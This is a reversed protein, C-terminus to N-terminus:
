GQGKRYSRKDPDCRFQQVSKAPVSWFGLVQSLKSDPHYRNQLLSPLDIQQKIFPKTYQHNIGCRLQDGLNIGGRHILRSDFVLVSGSQANVQIANKELYKEGPWKNLKHSCPVVWTGGTNESFDDIAWFANISLPKDTWFNKDFDRHFASQQHTLNPDVIISNQLNLICTDGLISSVVAYVKENLITKAFYDDKEILVRVSGLENLLKLREEGFENIQEANLRVLMSKIKTCEEKSIVDEMITYGLLDINELHNALEESFKEEADLL